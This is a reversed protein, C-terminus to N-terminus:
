TKQRNATFIKMTVMYEKGAEITQASVDEPIELVFPLKTKSDVALLKNQGESKTKVSILRTSTIRYNWENARWIAM